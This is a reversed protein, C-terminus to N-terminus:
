DSLGSWGIAILIVLVIDILISVIGIAGFVPIASFPISMIIDLICIIIGLVGGKRLGRWLWYGAVICLVSIILSVLGLILIIAGALSIAPGFIPMGGFAAGVAGVGIAILSGVISLIGFIYFLISAVTISTPRERPPPAVSPIRSPQWSRRVGIGYDELRIGCNWCYRDAEDVWVGCNPCYPMRIGREEIPM